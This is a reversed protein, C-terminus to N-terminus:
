VDEDEEDEEDQDRKVDEASATVYAWADEFSDVFFEDKDSEDDSRGDDSQWCCVVYVILWCSDTLALIRWLLWTIVEIDVDWRPYLLLGDVTKNDQKLSEFKAM